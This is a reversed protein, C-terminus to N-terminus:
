RGKKIIGAMRCALPLFGLLSCIALQGASTSTQVLFGVAPRQVPLSSLLMKQQTDKGSAMPHVTMSGNPNSVVGFSGNLATIRAILERYIIFKLPHCLSM